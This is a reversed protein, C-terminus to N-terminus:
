VQLPLERRNARNSTLHWTIVLILASGGYPPVRSSNALPRTGPVRKQRLEALGAETATLPIAFCAGSPFPQELMTTGLCPSRNPNRPRVVYGRGCESCELCMLITNSTGKLFEM